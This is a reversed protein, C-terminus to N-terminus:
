KTDMLAARMETASAFRNTAERDLSRRIIAVLDDPLDDRREQIPVPDTQLVVLVAKAISDPFEYIFEDTLLTYLMAGVSYLDGAPAANRYDTLHEPPAFALSGGVDGQMTIGSMRSTQYVRALGFDALQVNISSDSVDILVNAPKIDRHVYRREHAYELAELVQCAVEVATFIPLPGQQSLLAAANPAAFYNMAFYLRGADEAIEVFKIIRPHDLDRLVQAERLFLM